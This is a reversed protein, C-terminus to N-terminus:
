LPMVYAVNLALNGVNSNLVYKVSADIQGFQMGVGPAFVFESSSATGGGYTVGLFSVGPVTISASYIGLQLSGYFGPTVSKSLNYKGGALITLASMSSKVGNVDKEAFSTYGVQGTLLIDENLGYQFLGFGGIGLGSHDAATGMPLALEIGAGASMKGQGWVAQASAVSAVLVIVVLVAFLKKM